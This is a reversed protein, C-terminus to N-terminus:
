KKFKGLMLIVLDAITLKLELQQENLAKRLLKNENELNATQMGMEQIKRELPKVENAVIADIDVKPEQENNNTM